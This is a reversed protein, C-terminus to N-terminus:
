RSEDIASVKWLDLIHPGVNKLTDLEREKKIGKKLEEVEFGPPIKVTFVVSEPM